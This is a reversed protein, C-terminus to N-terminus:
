WSGRGEYVASRSCPQLWGLWYGGSLLARQRVQPDGMGMGKPHLVLGLDLDVVGAGLGLGM